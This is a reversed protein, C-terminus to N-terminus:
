DEADDRGVIREVGNKDYTALSLKDDPKQDNINKNVPQNAADNQQDEEEEAEM